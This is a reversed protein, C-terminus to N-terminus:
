GQDSLYRDEPPESYLTALMSPDTSDTSGEFSQAREVFPALADFRDATVVDGSRADFEVVGADALRPLHEHVLSIAVRDVTEDPVARVSTETEVAALTQALSEVTAYSSDQLRYLLHRRQANALLAFADDLDLPETTTM